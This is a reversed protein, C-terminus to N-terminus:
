SISCSRKVAGSTEDGHECFGTSVLRHLLLVNSNNRFTGIQLRQRSSPQGLQLKTSKIMEKRVYTPITHEFTDRRV